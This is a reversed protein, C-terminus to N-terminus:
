GFQDHYRESKIILAQIKSLLSENISFIEAKDYVEQLNKVIENNKLLSENKEIKSVLITVERIIKQNAVEAVQSKTQINQNAAEAVQSKTQINQNAVQIRADIAKEEQNAAEAVQSKTQINQNAAQIRADIAREEKITVETVKLAKEKEATIVEHEWTKFILRDSRNM